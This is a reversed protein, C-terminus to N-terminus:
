TSWRAKVIDEEAAVKLVAWACSKMSSSGEFEPQWRRGVM